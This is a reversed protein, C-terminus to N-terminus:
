QILLKQVSIGGDTKIRVYYVGSKFELTSLTVHTNKVVQSYVRQGLQNLIEVETMEQDTTIRVVDNAPNPYIMVRAEEPLEPQGTMFDISIDDVMFIFADNSVCQIAVYVTQGDYGSIDFNMETWDTPAELPSPDNIITFDGPDMGTTSVGVNYKELGYQDTYSKVWLNFSSNTGLNIQPSILWDDNAPPPVSAMCAGFKDGGHPQIETDDTMPPVTTAPNFCIFAMPEGAHPFEVGEIGYTQAGMDNDVATWDDFTLSWNDIDEFDLIVSQMTGGPTVVFIAPVNVVPTEPDNSLVRITASYNGQTLGSADFTVTIQDTEGPAVTGMDPDVSLWTEIPDGTLNARINWNADAGYNTLKVWAANNFTLFGGLPHAPGGDAGAIYLNSDPQHYQYGVWVDGGDLYVPDNLVVNNWSEDTQTFAQEYILDGPSDEDGMEYIRLKFDTGGTGIWIDVSEIMM